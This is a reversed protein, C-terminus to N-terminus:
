RPVARCIPGGMCTQRAQVLSNAQGEAVTTQGEDAALQALRAQMRQLSPLAESSLGRRASLLLSKGEATGTAPSGTSGAPSGQQTAQAGLPPRQFLAAPPLNGTVHNQLLSLRSSQREQLLGSCM